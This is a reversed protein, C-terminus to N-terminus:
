AREGPAAERTRRRAGAPTHAPRTDPAGGIHRRVGVRHSRTGGGAHRGRGPPRCHSRRGGSGARATGPRRSPLM